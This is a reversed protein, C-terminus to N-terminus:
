GPMATALSLCDATTAHRGSQYPIDFLVRARDNGIPYILIPTAAGLFVIGYGPEPINRTSVRYGIMTSIRRNHVGIGALRALRSPAGDAAILMLCRYRSTVGGDAVEIVVHSAESQDLGVVRANQKVTVNPLKSVAKMMRERILGHELCLGAKGHAPVADYPLRICNGDSFVSFGKITAISGGTLAPL